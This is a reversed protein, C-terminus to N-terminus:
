ILNVVNIGCLGMGINYYLNRNVKFLLLALGNHKQVAKLKLKKIILIM